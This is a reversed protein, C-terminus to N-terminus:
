ANQANCSYKEDPVIAVLLLAHSARDGAIVADHQHRRYAIQQTLRREDKCVLPPMDHCSPLFGSLASIHSRRRFGLWRLSATPWARSRLVRAAAAHCNALLITRLEKGFNARLTSAGNTFSAAWVEIRSNTPETALCGTIRETDFVILADPPHATKARTPALALGLFVACDSYTNTATFHTGRGNVSTKNSAVGAPQVHNYANSLYRYASMRQPTDALSKRPTEPAPISASLHPRRM